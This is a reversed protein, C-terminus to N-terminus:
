AVQERMAPILEPNETRWREWSDDTLMHQVWEATDPKPTVGAHASTPAEHKGCFYLGCGAAEVWEEEADPEDDFREYEIVEGDLLLVYHGHAECKYGLGRDIEEKCDPMDCEAPVGYGAWRDHGEIDRYVQYGM